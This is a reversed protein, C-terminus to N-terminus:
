VKKFTSSSDFDSRSPFYVVIPTAGQDYVLHDFSRFFAGNVSKKAEDSVAEEPM